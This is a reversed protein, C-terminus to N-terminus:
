TKSMQSNRQYEGPTMGCVKRFVRGFYSQSSYGLCEAVDLLSMNAADFLRKAEEVKVENIFAVITKGTEEKFCRCLYSHSMKLIDAIMAPTIKENLHSYVFKNIATVYPLHSQVQRCIATKQTFEIFMQEFLQIIRSYSDISEFKRGYNYSVALATDYDLGGKMAASMTLGILFIGTDKLSRIASPTIDPIEEVSYFLTLFASKIMDTRGYEICTLLERMPLKHIPDIFDLEAAPEAM